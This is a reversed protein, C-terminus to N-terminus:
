RRLVRDSEEHEVVERDRSSGEDNVCTNDFNLLVSHEIDTTNGVHEGGLM